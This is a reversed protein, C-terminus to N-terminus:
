IARAPKSSKINILSAKFECLGVLKWRRLM